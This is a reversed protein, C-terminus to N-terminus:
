PSRSLVQAVGDEQNSPAVLDAAALLEPEANAMAVGIGANRIMTLDNTGDGFAVACAPDLGLAQCLALLADGKTAGPANIELNGPLSSSLILQPYTEGLLRLAETRVEPTHFFAQLKQVSEGGDRVDERFHDLPTRCDQTMKLAHPDDIYRELHDYYKRDMLGIDNQYCDICADLPEFMQFLGQAVDMPVEARYLVTDTQLDYVKAGNVLIFYRLFPLDRLEQSLSKYSRGTSLVVQAGQGAARELAARNAPSLTKDDRLLTGDLDTLILKPKQTTLEM